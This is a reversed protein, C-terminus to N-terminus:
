ITSISIVSQSVLVSMNGWVFIATGVVPDRWPFKPSATWGITFLSAFIAFGGIMAPYLRYEIPVMTNPHKKSLMPYAVRDIIISTAAAVFAGITPSIFALGVHQIEFNYVTSLVIPVTIFFQFLVAFNFSLYLTIGAVIPESVLQKLPQVITVYAMDSLVVGSQAPELVLTTGLRKARRYMIARPYTEPIGVGLLYAALSVM